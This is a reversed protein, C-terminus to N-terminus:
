SKSAAPKWAFRVLLASLLSVLALLGLAQPLSLAEAVFGIVPPGLLFGFYGVSGIATMNGGTSMGPTKAAESFIVPVIVSFGIGAIGFGLIAIWTNSLMLLGGISAAVLLNGGILIRLPGIKETLEDGFFRGIAMSLEFAALAWGVLYLDSMLSKEMYLTSWDAIAGEALFSFLAVIALVLLSKGPLAFIAEEEPPAEEVLKILHKRQIFILTTFLTAVMIMYEFYPIEAGKGISGIGSGLMMGTSWCGHFASMIRAEEKEEIVAACINMAIDMGALSIGMFFLILVLSSIEAVLLPLPLFTAFLFSLVLSIKGAGFRKSLKGMFPMICLSGIAISLLVLGLSQESLSFFEKVEPIRIAWSGFFFGNCLFLLAVARSAKHKWIFTLAKM